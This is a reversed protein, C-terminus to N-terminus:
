MGLSAKISLVQTGEIALYGGVEATVNETTRFHMLFARRQKQRGPIVKKGQEMELSPQRELFGKVPRQKDIARHM